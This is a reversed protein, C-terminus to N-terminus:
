HYKVRLSVAKFLKQKEVTSFDPCKQKIEEGIAGALM